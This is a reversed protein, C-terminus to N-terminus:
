KRKPLYKREPVEDIKAKFDEDNDEAAADELDSMNFDIPKRKFSYESQGVDADSDDNEIESNANKDNEEEVELEKKYYYNFSKRKAISEYNKIYYEANKKTLEAKNTKYYEKAKIKNKHYYERKSAKIVKANNNAWLKAMFKSQRKAELKLEEIEYDGFHKACAKDKKIHQLISKFNRKCVKCPIGYHFILIETLLTYLDQLRQSTFTKPISWHKDEDKPEILEIEKLFNCFSARKFAPICEQQTPIIQIEQAEDGSNRREEVQRILNKLWRLPVENKQDTQILPKTIEQFRTTEFQRVLDM